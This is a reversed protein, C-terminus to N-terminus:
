NGKEGMQRLQALRDDFHYRLKMASDQDYLHANTLFTQLQSLEDVRSAVDQRALAATFLALFRKRYAEKPVPPHHYAHTVIDDVLLEISLRLAAQETLTMSVTSLMMGENFEQETFLREMLNPDKRDFGDPDLIKVGKIKEWERITYKSV